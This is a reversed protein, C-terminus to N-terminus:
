YGDREWIWGLLLVLGYLGAMIMSACGLIVLTWDPANCLM